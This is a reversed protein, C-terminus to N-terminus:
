RFILVVFALLLLGIVTVALWKGSAGTMKGLAGTSSKGLSGGCFHCLLAEDDYIPNKCSPCIIERM